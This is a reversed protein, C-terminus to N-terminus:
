AKKRKVLWRIFFVLVLLITIYMLVTKITTVASAFSATQASFDTRLMIETFINETYDSVMLLVPFALLVKKESLKILALSFFVAYAIPYCFDLPLQINLYTHMGRESLLSIFTKAEEFTYGFANMDFIKIGRTTSEILPILCFNMVGCIILTLAGSIILLPKIAKSNTM